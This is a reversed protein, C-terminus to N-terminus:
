QGSFIHIFRTKSELPMGKCCRGSRHKSCLCRCCHSYTLSPLFCILKLVVQKTLQTEAGMLTFWNSDHGGRVKVLLDAALSERQLYEYFCLHFVYLLFMCVYKNIFLNLMYVYPFVYSVYICMYMCVYMYVYMCVYMCVYICVYMCM